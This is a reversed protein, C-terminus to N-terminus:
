HPEEAGERVISKGEKMERYLRAICYGICPSVRSYPCIRCDLILKGEDDFKEEPKKPCPLLYWCKDRVCESRRVDWFYCYRCDFPKDSAYERGEIESQPLRVIDAKRGM